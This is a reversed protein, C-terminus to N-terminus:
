RSNRYEFIYGSVLRTGLQGNQVKLFTFSKESYYSQGAKDVTTRIFLM